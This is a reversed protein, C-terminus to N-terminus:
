DIPKFERVAQLMKTVYRKQDSQPLPPPEPPRWDPHTIEAKFAAQRTRGSLGLKSYIQELLTWLHHDFPRTKLRAEALQRARLYRGDAMMQSILLFRPVAEASTEATQESSAPGAAPTTLAASPLSLATDDEAPPSDAQDSQSNDAPPDYCCATGPMAMLLSLGSITILLCAPRLWKYPLIEM